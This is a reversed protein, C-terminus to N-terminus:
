FIKNNANNIKRRAKLEEHITSRVLLRLQDEIQNTRINGRNRSSSQRIFGEEAVKKKKAPKKTEKEEDEDEEEKYEGKM